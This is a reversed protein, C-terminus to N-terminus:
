AAREREEEGAGIGGAAQVAEAQQSHMWDAAAQAKAAATFIARPDDNLVKLWSQVYAAHDPRPRNALGLDAMVFAATLEAVLEEAAYAESGFRGSLDRDLRHPAGTAHACEHARTAYYAAADTFRAFDPLHVRDPGPAYFAAEGGYVTSIELRDLFSEAATLREAEDLVPPEPDAYGEVQARNFVSFARAFLKPRDADGEEVDGAGKLEKWLVVTTAREGRRVQADLAQWQQYTAWSGSGYGQGVAAVWLALVNIGRYRRGSTANTPRAPAAGDHHWPMKWEGAGRRVAAGIEATLRTYLDSRSAAPSSSRSM